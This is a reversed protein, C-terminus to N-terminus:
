YYFINRRQIVLEVWTPRIRLYGRERRSIAGHDVYEGHRALPSQSQNLQLRIFVDMQWQLCNIVPCPNPPMLLAAFELLEAVEGPALKRQLTWYQHHYRRCKVNM